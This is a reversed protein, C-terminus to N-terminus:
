QTKTATYLIYPLSCFNHLVITYIFLMIYIVHNTYVIFMHEVCIDGVRVVSPILNFDKLCSDVCRTCSEKCYFGCMECSPVKLLGGLCFFFRM